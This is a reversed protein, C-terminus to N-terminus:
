PANSEFRYAFGDSQVLTGTSLPHATGAVEISIEHLGITDFGHGFLRVDTRQTPAYTDVVAVLEGDIRVNAYGGDPNLVGIWTIENGYFSFSTTNGAVTSGRTGFSLNGPFVDNPWFGEYVVENYLDDVRAYTPMRTWTAGADLTEWLWANTSVVVRQDLAFGPSVDIAWCATQPLGASASQWTDGSDVSKFVEQSQTAIFMIGDNRFRPSLAISEVSMDEALPLGATVAEWSDGRNTSRWLGNGKTGVFLTSDVNYTPSIVLARVIADAPIAGSINECTTGADTSRYVGKNKTSLFVTQDSAYNPSLRIYRTSHVAPLGDTLETWNAGSDDTRWTGSGANTGIFLTGDQPHDPAIGVFRIITAAPTEIEKWLKGDDSSRWVGRYTYFLTPTAASYNPAVQMATSFLIDLGLSKSSWHREDALSGTSDPGGLAGGPVPALPGSSSGIAGSPTPRGPQTSTEHAMTSYRYVGGGYSGVFIKGDNLIDPSMDVARVIEVPYINRQKFMQGGSTSMFLGEFGGVFVTQDVSYSPTVCVAVYHNATLDSLPEFGDEFLTWAGGITDARYCSDLQTCAFFTGDDAIALDNVFDENLGGVMPLFTSGGDDSTMVGGGYRGFAIALTQDVAFTPSFAMAEVPDAFTGISQWTAGADNSRFVTDHAAFMTGTTGYATHTSTILAAGLGDTVHTWNDGADTSRYIGGVTVAIVTQDVSFTPSVSIDRGTLSPLGTNIRGWTDGGDTSRWMGANNTAIFCTQDVAFNDSFSLDQYGHLLPTIGTATWSLGGDSSRILLEHESQLIVAFLTQDVTFTPSIELDLVVDHPSHASADSSVTLQTGLVLM